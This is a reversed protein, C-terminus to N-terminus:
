IIPHLKLGLIDLKGFLTKEMVIQIVKMLIVMYLMLRM